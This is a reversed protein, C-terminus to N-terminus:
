IELQMKQIFAIQCVKNTITGGATIVRLEYANFIADIPDVPIGFGRLSGSFTTMSDIEASDSLNDIHGFGSDINGSSDEIKWDILIKNRKLQKIDSYTVLNPLTLEQTILGDFSINYSQNTPTSTKWGANDRTTTDLMEASESFSNTTLCGIPFYTEDKKFYLIKLTGNEYNM